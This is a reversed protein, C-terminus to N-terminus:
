FKVHIGLMKENSVVKINEKDITINENLHLESNRKDLLIAQFKDPNVLMSKDRFLNIACGTESELISVLNKATRAYSSLTNDDAFNHVSM